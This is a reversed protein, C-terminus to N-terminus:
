GEKGPPRPQEALNVPKRLFRTDPVEVDAYVASMLVVPLPDGRTDHGRRAM